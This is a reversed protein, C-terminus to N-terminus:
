KLKGLECKGENAYLEHNALLQLVMGLHEIHTKEDQSYVLINDFFVLVFKRLFPKFVENMLAQFTSPPISLRFPM